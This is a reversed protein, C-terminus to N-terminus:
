NKICRVAGVSTPKGKQPTPFPLEITFMSTDAVIMAQKFRGGINSLPNLYHNPGSEDPSTYKLTFAVMISDLESGFTNLGFGTATEDYLALSMSDYETGKLTGINKLLTEWDNWTPIRWGDPCLGQTNSLKSQPVHVEYDNHSIVNLKGMSSDIEVSVMEYISDIEINMAAQWWYAPGYASDFPVSSFANDENRSCSDTGNACQMSGLLVSDKFDLDEAMWTQSVSDWEYTVTKYTKGDRNDVLTGKTHEISKYGFIWKGSRCVVPYQKEVNDVDKISIIRPENERSETCQGLSDRHAYYGVKYNIIKMTNSYYEEADVGIASIRKPSSFVVGFELHIAFTSYILEKQFEIVFALESADDFIDEFPGLDEYIGLNELYSQEALRNAEDFTKGENVYKLLIPAKGSTLTNLSVLERKRLDAVAKFSERYATIPRLTTFTSDALVYVSDYQDQTEVLVYPSSLSLDKFEFRGEDNDITDVFTRGTAALTQVDLEHVTVITGKAALMFNAPKESNAQKALKPLVDGARGALAYIRTEETVGGSVHDDSCAAFVFAFLMVMKCVLQLKIKSYNM